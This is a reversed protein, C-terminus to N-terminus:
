KYLFEARREKCRAFKDIVKANFDSIKMVFEREISLMALASLRDQSMTNRLFTKVRKLTSFCREAEATSMPMTLLVKLLKVCESFTACLNNDRIFDMLCLAGSM